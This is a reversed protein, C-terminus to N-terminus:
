SLRKWVNVVKYPPLNIVIDTGGYVQIGTNHRVVKEISVGNPITNQYDTTYSQGMGNYYDYDFSDGNAYLAAFTDGSLNHSHSASGGTSGFIYDGGSGILTRGQYSTDIEWSTGAWRQAPTQMGFFQIYPKGGVPYENDLILRDFDSIKVYTTEINDGNSDNTANGAYGVTVSPYNGSEDFSKGPVGQPGQPGIEGQPGQPGTAGTEGQPGQPGPPGQISGVETWGFTGDSLQVCSYMIKPTTTGVWATEGIRTADPPYKSQLDAASDAEIKPTEFNRGDEGPAGQAGMPGAPGAPGQIGQIGQPGREGQVGQIGQPGTEGQAGTAGTAGPVGQPGRPGQMTLQQRGGPMDVYVGAQYTSVGDSFLQTAVIYQGEKYPLTVGTKNIAIPKFTSM